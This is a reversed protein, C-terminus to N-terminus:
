SSQEHEFWITHRQNLIGLCHVCKKVPLEMAKRLVAHPESCFLYLPGIPTGSVGSRQDCHECIVDEIHVRYIKGSVTVFCILQYRGQAGLFAIDVGKIERYYLLSPNLLDSHLLKEGDFKGTEVIDSIDEQNLFILNQGDINIKEV